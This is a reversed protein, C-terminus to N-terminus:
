ERIRTGARTSRILGVLVLALMFVFTYFAAALGVSLGPRPRSPALPPAAHDIVTVKSAANANLEAALTDLCTNVFKAAADPDPLEGEVIMIGSKEIDRAALHSRLTEPSYQKGGQNMRAAVKGFFDGSVLYQEALNTLFAAHVEENQWGRISETQSPGGVSTVFFSARARYYPTQNKAWIAAIVVVLVLGILFPVGARAWARAFDALTVTSELENPNRTKQIPQM